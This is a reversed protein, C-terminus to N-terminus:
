TLAIDVNTGHRIQKQCAVCSCKSRTSHEQMPKVFRFVIEVLNNKIDHVYGQSNDKLLGHLILWYLRATTLNDSEVLQFTRRLAVCADLDDRKFLDRFKETGAKYVHYLVFLGTDLPCTNTLSYIKSEHIANRIGFRPWTLQLTGITALKLKTKSKIQRRDPSNSPSCKSKKRYRRAPTSPKSTSQTTTTSPSHSRKPSVVRSRMPSITPSIYDDMYKPNPTRQRSSRRVGQDVDTTETDSSKIGAVLVSSDNRTSDEYIIPIDLTDSSTALPIL